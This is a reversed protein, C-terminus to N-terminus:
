KSLLAEVEESYPCYLHTRMSTGFSNEKLYIAKVTKDSSVKPEGDPKIGKAQLV